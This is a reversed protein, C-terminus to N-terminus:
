LFFHGILYWYNRIKSLLSLICCKLCFIESWRRNRTALLLCKLCLLFLRLRCAFFSTVVSIRMSSQLLLMICRQLLLTLALLSIRNRNNERFCMMQRLKVLPSFGSISRCSLSITSCSWVRICFLLLIRLSILLLLIYRFKRLTTNLLMGLFSEIGFLWWHLNVCTLHIFLQDKWLLLLLTTILGVVIVMDASAYVLLLDYFGVVLLFLVLHLDLHQLLRIGFRVLDRLLLLSSRCGHIQLQPRVKLRIPILLNAQRYKNITLLILTFTSNRSLPPLDFLCSWSQNCWFNVLRTWILCILVPPVFTKLSITLLNPKRLHVVQIVLNPDDFLGLYQAFFTAHCWHYSCGFKSTVFIGLPWVDAYLFLTDCKVILDLFVIIVYGDSFVTSAVGLVDWVHDKIFHTGLCVYGFLALVFGTFLINHPTLAINQSWILRLPFQNAFHWLVYVKLLLLICFTGTRLLM